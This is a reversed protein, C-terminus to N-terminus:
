QRLHGVIKYPDLADRLADGVYNLAIVTLFIMAGPFIPLWPYVGITTRADQLM